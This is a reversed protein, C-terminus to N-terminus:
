VVSKRDLTHDQRMVIATLVAIDDRQVGYDNLLQRQQRAILELSPTIDDSM